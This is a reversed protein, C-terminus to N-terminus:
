SVSEAPLSRRSMPAIPRDERAAGLDLQVPLVIMPVGDHQLRRQILFATENHLIRNWVTDEEFIIQGAVVLGRPYKEILDNGLEQAELAVETGVAFASTAPLGLAAAFREYYALNDRTRKELAEIESVGKFADSDVVAISVFVVGEFHGPFMRLCTLLAHRGLGGYGGVFLIVTPKTPDPETKAIPASIGYIKAAEPGEEPGPLEQDLRKISRVVLLYHKKIMLCLGTLGATIVVTLWGGEAFKEFVTIILITV